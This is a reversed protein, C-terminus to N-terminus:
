PRIYQYVQSDPRGRQRSSNSLMGNAVGLAEDPSLVMILGPVVYAGSAPANAHRAEEDNSLGHEIGLSNLEQVLASLDCM